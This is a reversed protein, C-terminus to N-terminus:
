RPWWNIIMCQDIADDGRPDAPNLRRGAPPVLVNFMDLDKIFFKPVWKGDVKVWDVKPQRWQTGGILINDLSTDLGSHFKVKKTVTHRLWREAREAAFHDEPERALLNVLNMDFANQAIKAKREAAM